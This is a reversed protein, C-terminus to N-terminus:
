KQIVKPVLFHGSEKDPANALAQSHGLGDRPRDNRVPTNHQHVNQTPPTDGLDLEDIKAVHELVQGLQRALLDAEADAFTLNALAAYHRVTDRDISM